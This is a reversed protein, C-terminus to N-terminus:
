DTNMTALIRILVQLQYERIRQLPQYRSQGTGQDADVQGLGDLADGGTSRSLKNGWLRYRHFGHEATSQTSPTFPRAEM